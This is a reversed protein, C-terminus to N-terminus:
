YSARSEPFTYHRGSDNKCEIILWGYHRSMITNRISQDNADDACEFSDTVSTEPNVEISHFLNVTYTITM